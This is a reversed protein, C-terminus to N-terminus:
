AMTVVCLCLVFLVVDTVDINGSGNGHIYMMRGRWMEDLGCAGDGGGFRASGYWDDFVFEVLGLKM